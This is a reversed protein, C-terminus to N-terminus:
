DAGCSIEGTIEVTGDEGEPAPGNSTIKYSGKYEGDSDEVMATEIVLDFSYIASEKEVETYFSLKVEDGLWHHVLKDDLTLKRFDALVRQDKIEAAAKFDFFPSGLRADRRVPDGAEHQCRRPRM